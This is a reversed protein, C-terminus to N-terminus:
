VYDQLSTSTPLFHSEQVSLVQGVLYISGTVLLDQLKNQEAEKLELGIDKWNGRRVKSHFAEPTLALMQEFDCARPLESTFYVLEQAVPALLRILDSARDEGMVALWVKFPSQFTGLNEKLCEVGGRNHCADLIIKPSEKLTQWRGPLVVKKLGQYNNENSVAFKTKLLEIAKMALAANRRQYNGFLNTEPCQETSLNLDELKANKNNSIKIIERKAEPPLWGTIVPVKNKIIGGKERAIDSIRHGLIECHDLSISTIISLEPNVVNTSDLRGGLGTELIALDVKSEQFRLFAIATMIEFFTPHMGKKESEMEEAIPQIRLVVNEIEQMTMNEGNVQIREGLEILHPSSFLGVKYGNSQYMSNLMACVSGKGNTGAVHIVPYSNQPNNLRDVLIRMRELGFSSGQNRLKYLYDLFTKM